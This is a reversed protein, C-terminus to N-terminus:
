GHPDGSDAGVPVEAGVVPRVPGSSRLIEEDSDFQLLPPDLPLARSRWLLISAGYLIGAVVSSSLFSLDIGNVTSTLPGTFFSADSFLLGVAVAGMWAGIAFPNWGRVFWYKGGRVRVNFAQLDPPHYEGRLAFHGLVIIVIWPATIITLIYLFDTVLNTANWVLSGVFVVALGVVSTAITAQARKVRPFLSSTDLGTGYLAMSGQGIGGLLGVVVLVVGYWTPSADVLGLIFNTQSASFLTAFYAAFLLVIWSSVILAVTGFVAARRTHRLPLYRAYDGAFPGYSLPVSVITVTSLMWTPWFSGLLYHGGAYHVNFHPLVVFFGMIVLIGLLPALVRQALVITAHGVLAIFVTIVGMVAYAVALSGDGDSMGWLHHLVAVIAQGGTWVALGYFGIAIFLVDCSGLIRGVVGFVAGSSVASNTGTRPAVLLMLGFYISGVISGVTISWFSAWWGLGFVVPLWGLIIIALCTNAGFFLASIELPTSNRERLPIHDVGRTEIRGVADRGVGEIIALKGEEQM